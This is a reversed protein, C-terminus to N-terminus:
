TFLLDGDVERIPFHIPPNQCRAKSLFKISFTSDSRELQDFSIMRPPQGLYYHVNDEEHLPNLYFKFSLINCETRLISFTLAM